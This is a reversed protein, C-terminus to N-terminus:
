PSPLLQKDGTKVKKDALILINLSSSWQSEM